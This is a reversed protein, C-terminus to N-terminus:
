KIKGFVLHLLCAMMEALACTILEENKPSSLLERLGSIVLVAVPEISGQEMLCSLLKIILNIIPWLLTPNKVFQPHKMITLINSICPVLM